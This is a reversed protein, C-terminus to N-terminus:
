LIRRLCGNTSRQLRRSAKRGGTNRLLRLITMIRLKPWMKQLVLWQKETVDKKRRRPPNPCYLVTGVLMTTPNWLQHCQFREHLESKGTNAYLILFEEDADDDLISLIRHDLEAAGLLCERLEKMADEKIEILAVRFSHLVHDPVLTTSFKLSSRAEQMESSYRGFDNTVSVTNATIEPYDALLKKVKERTKDKIKTWAARINEECTALDYVQYVPSAAAPTPSPSILPSNSKQVRRRRISTRYVWEDTTDSLKVPKPIPPHSPFTPTKERAKKRRPYLERKDQNQVPMSELGPVPPIITPSTKKATRRMKVVPVSGPELIPSAISPIRARTTEETYFDWTDQERVPLSQPGATPTVATPTKASTTEEKIYFGWRDQKRAPAPKPDTASSIIFPLKAQKKGTKKSFGWDFEEEQEQAALLEPAPEKARGPEEWARRGKKKGKKTDFSGWDFGDALEEPEPDPVKDKVKKTGFSKWGFDDALAEPKPDPVKKTIKPPEVATGKSEKKKDKTRTGFSWIDDEAPALKREPIPDPEKPTQEVEEEVGRSKKKRDKKTTFSRLGFNDTATELEYKPSVTAVAPESGRYTKVARQYRRRDNEVFQTIPPSASTYKKAPKENDKSLSKQGSVGKRVSAPEPKPTTSMSISSKRRRERGWKRYGSEWTDDEDPAAPLDPLPAWLDKEKSAKGSSEFIDGLYRSAKSYRLGAKSEVKSGGLAAGEPEPIRASPGANSKGGFEETGELGDNVEASEMTVVKKVPRPNFPESRLSERSSRRRGMNNLSNRALPAATAMRQYQEGLTSVARIRSDESIGLLDEYNALGGGLLVHLTTIMQSQMQIVIDKLQHSGIDITTV